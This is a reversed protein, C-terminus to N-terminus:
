YESFYWHSRNFRYAQREKVEIAILSLYSLRSQGMTCVFYNQIRKLKSFSRKAHSSTLPITYFLLIAYISRNPRVGNERYKKWYTILLWIILHRIVKKTRRLYLEVLRRKLSIDCKRLGIKLHMTYTMWYVIFSNKFYCM